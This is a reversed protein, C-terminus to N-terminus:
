LCSTAPEFGAGGMGRNAPVEAQGGPRSSRSTGVGAGFRRAGGAAPTRAPGPSTRWAGRGGASSPPSALPGTTNVADVRLPHNPARPGPSKATSGSSRVLAVANSAASRQGDGLVDLLPDIELDAFLPHRLHAARNVEYRNAADKKSGCSSGQSVLDAVIKQAARERHRRATRNRQHSYHPGARHLARQTTRSSSGPRVRTRMVPSEQAM